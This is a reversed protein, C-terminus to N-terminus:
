MVHIVEASLFWPRSVNASLQLGLWPDTRGGRGYHVCPEHLKNGRSYCKKLLNEEWGKQSLDPHPCGQLQYLSMGVLSFGTPQKKKQKNTQKIYKVKWNSIASRLKKRTKVNKDWYCLIYLWMYWSCLFFFVNEDSFLPKKNKKKKFCSVSFNWTWVSWNRGAKFLRHADNANSVTNASGPYASCSSLRSFHPTM